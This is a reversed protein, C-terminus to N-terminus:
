LMRACGKWPYALIGMGCSFPQVANFRFASYLYLVIIKLMIRELLPMLYKVQKSVNYAVNTYQYRAGNSLEHLPAVFLARHSWHQERRQNGDEGLEEGSRRLSVSRSRSRREYRSEALFQSFSPKGGCAVPKGTPTGRTSLLLSVARFKPKRREQGAIANGTKLM